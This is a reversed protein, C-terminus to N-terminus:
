SWPKWWSLVCTKRPVNKWRRKCICAYKKQMAVTTDQPPYKMDVQAVALLEQTQLLLTILLSICSWWLVRLEGGNARVTYRMKALASKNLFRFVMELVCHFSMCPLFTVFVLGDKGFRSTQSGCRTHRLQYRSPRQVLAGSKQSLLYSNLCSENQSLSFLWM